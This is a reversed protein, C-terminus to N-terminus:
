VAITIRGNVVVLRLKGSEISKMQIDSLRITRVKKILDDPYKNHTQYPHSYPEDTALFKEGCKPCQLRLIPVGARRTRNPTRLILETQDYICRLKQKM